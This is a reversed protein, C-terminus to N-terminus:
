FGLGEAMAEAQERTLGPHREMANRIPDFPMGPTSSGSGQHQGQIGAPSSREENQAEEVSSSHGRKSMSEHTM